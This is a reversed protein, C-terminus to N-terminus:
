RGAEMVVIVSGLHDATPPIAHRAVPRLGHERGQRELEDATVDVLRITHERETLAGEPSVTQRLRRVVVAGREVDVGLPLSSFVWGEVESVDPAPAPSGPSASWPEAPGAAIALAIRGGPLVHRGSAALMASRDAEDLLQVLQMPAVILGFREALDFDRADARHTAVRLGDERARRRLAELLEAETDLGAIADGARALRLAVRGTGCGLELTPGPTTLALREWTALDAAYRGCEVDHWIVAEEMGVSATM